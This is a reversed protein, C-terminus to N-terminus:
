DNSLMCVPPPSLRHFWGNECMESRRSMSRSDLWVTCWRIDIM